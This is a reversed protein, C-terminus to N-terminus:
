YTILRYNVFFVGGMCQAVYSWVEVLSWRESM